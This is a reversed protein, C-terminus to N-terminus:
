PKAWLNKLWKIETLTKVVGLNKSVISDLHEEGIPHVLEDSGVEITVSPIKGTLICWDKYGGCSGVTSKIKYGTRKSIIKAIKLDRNLRDETQGYEFYIEEGKSHYSLTLDPKFSLTLDRLVRSERESFPSSGVYNEYNPFFANKDGKGWDADFNTNLDVMRANAKYRPNHYLSIKVGDPNSIPVFWVTGRRGYISFHMLEKLALYATIYERGHIASQYIIKPNDSKRVCFAYVSQGKYTTCLIKKEGLYGDYFVKVKDLIDM